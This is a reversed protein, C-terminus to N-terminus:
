EKKYSNTLEIMKKEYDRYDVKLEYSAIREILSAFQHEQFYPASKSNGPEESEIYLGAERDKEFQIDFKSIEEFSIGRKLCLYIEQIEHNMTLFEYDKNGMDSVRIQITGNEDIWYDGVTNYNQNSHPITKIHIEM